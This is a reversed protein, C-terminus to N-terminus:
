RGEMFLRLEELTPFSIAGEPCVDTSCYSCGVTCGFPNVVAVTGTEEIAYVQNHCFSACKGCATCKDADIILYWPIEERPVKNLEM